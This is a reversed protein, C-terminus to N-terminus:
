VTHSGFRAAVLAGIRFVICATAGAIVDDAVVGWGGPLAQAQHAGLPKWIDFLRFLVFAAVFVTIRHPAFLLAIWQGIVEDIVIPGADHGLEHEALGAIWAALLAAVAIMVIAENSRPLPLFWAAVVVVASGVTAPAVPFYGVPGLSAIFAALRRM